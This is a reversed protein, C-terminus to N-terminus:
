ALFAIFLMSILWEPFIINCIVGISVGLLLCPEPLLAIDFDILSKSGHICNIVMTCLINSVSGGAVMFASFTSATKLKLGGVITLIPVFLEGGGIGVASSISAAIFCLVRARM